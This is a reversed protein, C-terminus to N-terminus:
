KLCKGLVQPPTYLTHEWDGLQGRKRYVEREKNILRNWQQAINQPTVEKSFDPVLKTLWRLVDWITSKKGTKKLQKPQYINRLSLQKPPEVDRDEELATLVQASLDVVALESAM